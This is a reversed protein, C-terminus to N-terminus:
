FIHGLADWQTGCQLPLSVMDDAYRLGGKDQVGAVADTGTALMTHIPNFRNGWLGKQPGNKDFNLGLSFVKGRRILKGAAVVDAPSIFNLTGAEDDQGWRGWNKCREATARLHKLDFRKEDYRRPM